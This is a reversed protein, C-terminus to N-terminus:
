GVRRLPPYNFTGELHARQPQYLRLTLYFGEGDPAPLWNKGPGPDEAQISISLGGDADQQLGRTRDGISHRGIPNAVLLCDSRRYLTISWFAGVQPGAGPAFRLIYCRAGTLAEGGADVEAMIYMAEDIGLTGIWNRAVRARTLIDSGFSSRVTVATTWGGGLDSPHALERLETYVDALAKQLEEVAPPWEPLPLSPPNRALMSELVRLYERGDPVGAGRDDLLTD